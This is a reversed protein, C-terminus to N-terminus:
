KNYINLIFLTCLTVLTAAAVWQLFLGLFQALEM